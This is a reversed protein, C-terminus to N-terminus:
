QKAGGLGFARRAANEPRGFVQTLRGHVIGLGTGILLSISVAVMPNQWNATTLSAFTFAGPALSLCAFTSAFGYFTAPVVSLLPLRSAVVFDDDDCDHAAQKCQYQASQHSM